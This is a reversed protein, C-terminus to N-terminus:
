PNLGGEKKSSGSLDGNPLHYIFLSDDMIFTVDGLGQSYTPNYLVNNVGYNTNGNNLLYYMYRYYINRTFSPAPTIDYNVSRTGILDYGTQNSYIDATYNGVNKKGPLTGGFLIENSHYTSSITFLGNPLTNVSNGDYVKSGNTASNITLPTLFSRLLPYTDGNYIRWIKGTNGADDIDWGSFTSLQKMEATTEPEGKGTDNQGTTESDYFSNTITDYNIGVLGGVYSGGTVSGTAYSNTITDYNIGVLGGVYSGGTVSGTAYSNTITGDDYGALGGVYSGSGTVSGTAYSNTITGENVGVLGGVYTYGTVKGTAYSDTINGGDYGVLGGVGNGTGTVSGTAYSNTINGYNYNHGVLGGVESGGTVNGTAYSNTITGGNYGVLGGVGSGTGTVSGTAYSNTITGGNYGVLGGVGNGTVSEGVLGVNRITAGSTYGFLGVNSTSPTNITLSTITHGLGDFVGTFATSSSGVPAFGAGSNWTSTASADINSGLAYHGSLNGQMGQLDKGTTSGVSGLSNIVTYPNNNITLSGTGSFDVRGAFTGDPNFGVNVTGGSVAADTGNATATNMALSATNSATMVANININNAATLTLTNASWSVADNVNINGSGSTAGTSSKIVVINNGLNTSLQSGSIDGGSPAITYDTPDILWTGTKGYPAYTTIVAGDEVKVKAASTEVSGGNGGNPASADLTGGVNIANNEKDGLLYIKGNINDITQAQIVGTNNIVSKLLKDASKASLIVEGGNAIITGTNQINAESLINEATSKDISISIPSNGQFTLTVEDGSALYTNGLNTTIAGNNTISPSILVVYGGNASSINGQNTISSITGTTNIFNYNGNMFDNDNIDLTSGLFGGVNIKAGNGILLGNPNIVWVQGNASLQGYILSPDIGVVRNLSISGSGPQIYQVKENAGISYGKWNIISKDTTQNIQMTTANPKTITSNGGVVTGNQPLAWANISFLMLIVAMIGVIANLKKSIVSLNKNIM